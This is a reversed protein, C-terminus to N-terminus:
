GVAPGQNARCVWKHSQGKILDGFMHAKGDGDIVEYLSAEFMEKATPRADPDFAEEERKLRAKKEASTEKKKGKIRLSDKEGLGKKRRDRRELANLESDLDWSTPAISCLGGVSSCQSTTSPRRDVVEKQTEASSSSPLTPLTPKKVFYASSAAPPASSTPTLDTLEYDDFATSIQSTPEPEAHTSGQSATRVHQKHFSGLSPSHTLSTGAPAEYPSAAKKPTSGFADKASSSSGPRSSTGTKKRRLSSFFGHHKDTEAPPTLPASHPSKISVPSPSRVPTTGPSAPRVYRSRLAQVAPQVAPAGNPLPSSPPPTPQISM